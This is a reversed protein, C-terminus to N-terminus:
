KVTTQATGFKCFAEPSRDATNNQQHSKDLGDRHQDLSLSVTLEHTDMAINRIDTPSSV